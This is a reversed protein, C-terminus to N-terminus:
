GSWSGKKTPGKKPKPVLLLWGNPAEEQEGKWGEVTLPM